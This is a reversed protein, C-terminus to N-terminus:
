GAFGIRRSGRMAPKLAVEERLATLLVAPSPPTGTLRLRKSAVAFDAPTLYDLAALHGRSDAEVEIAWQACTAQFLGWAQDRSLWDFRLKLDFRRLTAPDIQEILNTICIFLGTFTEMQSLLENVLSM